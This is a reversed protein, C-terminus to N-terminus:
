VLDSKNGRVPLSNKRAAEKLEDKRLKLLQERTASSSMKTSFM